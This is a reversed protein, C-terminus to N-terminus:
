FRLRWGHLKAFQAIQIERKVGHYPWVRSLDPEDVACHNAKGLERGMQRALGAVNRRRLEIITNCQFRSQPRLPVM